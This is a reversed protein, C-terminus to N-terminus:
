IVHEWNHNITNFAASLDLGDSVQIAPVTAIEVHFFNNSHFIDTEM